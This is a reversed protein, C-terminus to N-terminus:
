WSVETVKLHAPDTVFGPVCMVEGRQGEGEAREGEELVQRWIEVASPVHGALDVLSAGLLKQAELVHGAPCLRRSVLYDVTNQRGHLAAVLIPTLGQSDPQNIEAQGAQTALAKELLDTDGREALIHMVTYGPLAHFPHIFPHINFPHISEGGM